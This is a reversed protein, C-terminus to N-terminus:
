HDIGNRVAAQTWRSETSMTVSATNLAPWAAFNNWTPAVAIFELLEDFSPRPGPLPDQYYDWFARMWDLEVGRGALDFLSCEAEMYKVPFQGGLECNFATPGNHPFTAFCDADARDNWTAAAVFDAFGETMACGSMEISTLTHGGVPSGCTSGPHGMSCDSAPVEGRWTHMLAHGMEHAVVFKEYPAGEDIDLYIREDGYRYCAVGNCPPDDNLTFTYGLGVDAQYAVETAAALTNFRARDDSTPSFTSTRTGSGSHYTSFAAVATQAWGNQVRVVAGDVRAQSYVRITYFGADPGPPAMALTCGNLPGSDYAYATHSWSGRSVQILAGRTPRPEDEVWLDECDGASSCSPTREEGSDVFSTQSKLCFRVYAHADATLSWLVGLAVAAPLIIQTFM